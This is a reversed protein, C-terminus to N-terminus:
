GRGKVTALSEVELRVAFDTGSGGWPCGFTGALERALGTRLLRKSRGRVAMESEWRGWVTVLDGLPSQLCVGAGEVRFRARVM